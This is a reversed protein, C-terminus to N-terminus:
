SVLTPRPPRPTTRTRSRFGSGRRSSTLSRAAAAGAGGTLEQLEITEGVLGVRGLTAAAGVGGTRSVAPVLHNDRPGLGIFRAVGTPPFWPSTRPPGLSRVDAVIGRTDYGEDGAVTRRRTSALLRALMEIATAREAYGAAITLEADVILAATSWRCTGPTASGPRHGTRSAALRSEPDTTSAHTENSRREGHWAVEANRGAPPQSPPGDKPKFSTHSAWAEVNLLRAPADLSLLLIRCTHASPSQRGV